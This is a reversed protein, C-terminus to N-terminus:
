FRERCRYCYKYESEAMFEFLAVRELQARLFQPPVELMLYLKVAKEYHLQCLQLIKSRRSSEKDLDRYIEFISLM